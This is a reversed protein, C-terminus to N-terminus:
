LVLNVIVIYILEIYLIRNIMLFHTGLGAGKLKTKFVVNRGVKINIKHYFVNRAV